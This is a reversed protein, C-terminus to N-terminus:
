EAEEKQPILGRRVAERQLGQWFLTDVTEKDTDETPPLIRVSLNNVLMRIVNTATMGLTAACEELRAGEAPSLRILKAVHPRRKNSM